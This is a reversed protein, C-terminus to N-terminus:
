MVRVDLQEGNGHQLVWMSGMSHHSTTHVASEEEEVRKM